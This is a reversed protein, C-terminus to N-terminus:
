FYAWSKCTHQKDESFLERWCVWILEPLCSQHPLRWPWLLLVTVSISTDPGCVLQARMLSGQFRACDLWFRWLWGAQVSLLKEGNEWRIPVIKKFDLTSVLLNINTNWTAHVSKSIAPEVYTSAPVLCTHKAAPSGAAITLFEFRGCVQLGDGFSEPEQQLAWGRGMHLLQMQMWWCHVSEGYSKSDM